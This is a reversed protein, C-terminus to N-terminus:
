PRLHGGLFTPRDKSRYAPGPDVRTAPCGSSSPCCRRRATAWPYRLVRPVVPGSSWARRAKYETRGFAQAGSLGTWNSWGNVPTSGHDGTDASDERRDGDGAHGADGGVGAFPRSSPTVASGRDRVSTTRRRMPACRRGCRTALWV